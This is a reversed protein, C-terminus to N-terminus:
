FLIFGGLNITIIRKVHHSINNISSNSNLHKSAPIKVMTRRIMLNFILEKKKGIKFFHIVVKSSKTTTAFHHYISFAWDISRNNNPYIIDEKHITKFFVKISFNLYKLILTQNLECMFLTCHIVVSPLNNNLTCPRFNLVIINTIRGGKKPIFGIKTYFFKPM